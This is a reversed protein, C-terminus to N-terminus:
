FNGYKQIFKFLKLNGKIIKAWRRLTPTSKVKLYKIAIRISRRNNKFDKFLRKYILYQMIPIM